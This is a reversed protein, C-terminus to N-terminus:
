KIFNFLYGLFMFIMSVCAIDFSWPLFIYKSIKIGFLIILFSLFVSFPLGYKEHSYAIIYLLLSACFLGLLFWSPINVQNTFMNPPNLPAGNGYFIGILNEIPSNGNFAPYLKFFYLLTYTCLFFINTIFYPVVLRIFKKHIFRRVDKKYKVYHFLYGNIFFFMPMHFSFILSLLFQNFNNHGLIVLIIGIGKTIDIWKVKPLDLKYDEVLENYTRQLLSYDEGVEAYQKILEYTNIALQYRKIKDM